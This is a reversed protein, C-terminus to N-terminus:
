YYAPSVSNTINSTANDILNGFGMYSNKIQTGTSGKKFLVVVIIAVVVALMITYELLGQTKKFGLLV